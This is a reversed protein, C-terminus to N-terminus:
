FPKIFKKILKSMFDITTADIKTTCDNFPSDEYYASFNFEPDLEMVQSLYYKFDNTIKAKAKAEASSEIALSPLKKFKESHLTDEIMSIMMWLKSLEYKMGEINETKLYEKLLKHSKTYEAEYDLKRINKIILNGEKDFKIPFRKGETFPCLKISDFVINELIDKYAANQVIDIHKSLESLELINHCNALVSDIYSAESNFDIGTQEKLLKAKGMLSYVLNKIKAPKYNEALGEYIHYIREETNLAKNLKAPSVLSPDTKSIDIDAIKLCRDVFQSCVMKWDDNHPINFMFTLLNKYSYKTKDPNDKLTNIMRVIKEYANDSVFFVYVGIQSTKPTNKINEIRFGNTEQITYSYMTELTHDFSISAHSYISHTVAKIMGSFRTKGETMVVYVPKVSNNGSENYPMIEDSCEFETLNIVRPHRTKRYLRETAVENAISRAKASFETEPNWGLELISQKRSNIKEIDEGNEIMRTLGYSLERVKNAWSGSLNKMETYFGDNSARYMEFWDKVSVDESIMDNDAMAGYYNDAPAQGFVGMDIMEEPSIGPMDSCCADPIVPQSLGDKYSTIADSVINNIIMEEYVTKHPRNLKIAYEGLAAPMESIEKIYNKSSKVLSAEVLFSYDKNKDIDQRLFQSKLYEYHKLNTVGFLELSTWDSERRHKKVMLNYSDWLSELEELNRTPIIITKNSDKAWTRAKAVDETTYNIADANYYSDAPDLDVYSEVIPSDGDNVLPITDMRDDIDNGLLRDRITEYHTQNTMGFLEISKWDSERRNKKIMSNFLNWQHELEQLDDTPTIIARVADVSWQKASNIKDDSISDDHYNPAVLNDINDFSNYM